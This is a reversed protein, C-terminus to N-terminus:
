ITLVRASSMKDHNSSQLLIALSVSHFLTYVKQHFNPSTTRPPSCTIRRRYLPTISPSPQLIRLLHQNEMWSPRYLSKAPASGVSVLLSPPIQLSSTQKPTGVMTLLYPSNSITKKNAHLVSTHCLCSPSFCCCPGHKHKDLPHSTSVCRLILNPQPHYRRWEDFDINFKVHREPGGAEEHIGDLSLHKNEGACTLLRSSCGDIASVCIPSWVPSM